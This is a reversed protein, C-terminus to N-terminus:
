LYSKRGARDQATVLRELEDPDSVDPLAFSKRVLSNTSSNVRRFLKHERVKKNFKKDLHMSMFFGAILGIIICLLAILVITTTKPGNYVIVQRYEDDDFGFFDDDTLTRNEEVLMAIGGFDCTAGEARFDGFYEEIAEEATEKLESRLNRFMQLPMPQMWFTNLLRRLAKDSIDKKLVCKFEFKDEALCANRIKPENLNGKPIWGKELALMYSWRPEEVDTRFNWFYFGHGIGSFANIKKYALHTMVNDTDDLHKPATPPARVWDRGTQPNGSSEKLWDRDVPCYGFIPGSM